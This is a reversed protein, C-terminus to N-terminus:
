ESEYTELQGSLMTYFGFREYFSKLSEDFIVSIMYIHSEKLYEIMKNMLESGIGKGQYGPKVMLDQIYADTVGNSICDVYGILENDEFAAIHYYSTMKPNSLEKEMRNWGVSERLSSLQEASVQENIEFTM